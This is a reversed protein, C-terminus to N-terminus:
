HHTWNVRYSYSDIKLEVLARAGRWVSNPVDPEGAFHIDNISVMCLPEVLRQCSLGVNAKLRM